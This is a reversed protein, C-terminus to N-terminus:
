DPLAMVYAHHALETSQWDAASVITYWDGYWQVQDARAAGEAEVSSLETETLLLLASTSDLGQPIQSRVKGPAPQVTGDITDTVESGPIWRGRVYSGPRTKRSLTAGFEM